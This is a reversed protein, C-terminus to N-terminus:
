QSWKEKWVKLVRETGIRKIIFVGSIALATALVINYIIEWSALTGTMIGNTLTDDCCFCIYDYVTHIIIGPLASGTCVFLFGFYFGLLLAVIGQVIGNTVSAGQSINGIHIIGFILGSFFPVFWVRKKSKMFGMSVPIITVRFIVEEFIGATLAMVLNNLTPSFYFKNQILLTILIIVSYVIAPLMALFTERMSLGSRITGKYEPSYWLKMIILFLIAATILAICDQIDFAIGNFLGTANLIFEVVRILILSLLVLVIVACIPFKETVIHKHIKTMNKM